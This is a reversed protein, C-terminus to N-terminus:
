IEGYRESEISRAGGWTQGDARRERETERDREGRKERRLERNRERM